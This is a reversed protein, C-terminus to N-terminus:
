AGPVDRIKVDASVTAVAGSKYSFTASVAVESKGTYFAEAIDGYKKFM